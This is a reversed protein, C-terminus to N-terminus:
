KCAHKMIKKILDLKLHTQNEFKGVYAAQEEGLDYCTNNDIDVLIGPVGLREFDKQHKLYFEECCSGVFGTVGRAKLAKLTEELDEYNIITIPELGSQEALEYADGVSCEGCKTCEKQQRYECDRLKACYPLLMVTCNKIDKFEKKVTHINNANALDIGYESYEVKKLANDIVKLFDEPTVGPIQPQKENFFDFVIKKINELDATTDKLRSELDFITRSPYAFFDGTILV